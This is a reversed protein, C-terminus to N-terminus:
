KPCLVCHVLLQTAYANPAGPAAPGTPPNATRRRGTKSVCWRVSRRCRTGTSPDFTARRPDILTAPPTVDSQGCRPVPENNWSECSSEQLMTLSIRARSVPVTFTTSLRPYWPLVLTLPPPPTMKASLLRTLKNYPLSPSYHLSPGNM